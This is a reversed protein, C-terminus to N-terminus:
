TDPRDGGIMFNKNRSDPIADNVLEFVSRVLPEVPLGSSALRKIRGLAIEKNRSDSSMM